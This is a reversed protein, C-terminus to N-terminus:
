IHQLLQDAFGTLKEAIARYFREGKVKSALTPKGNVGSATVERFNYVASFAEGRMMDLASHLGNPPHGDDRILEKRVGAEHLYLYLSTELECAHGLGGYDSDRIAAIEERAHNWYESAAVFTQPHENKLEQLVVSLPMRNGGHGNLLWIRRAGMGIYSLCIAKLMAAYVRHDVSLTGGFSLHHPSHGLWLTPTL